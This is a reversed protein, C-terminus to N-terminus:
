HRWTTGGNQVNDPDDHGHMWVLPVKAGDQEVFANHRITRGDSCLIDNKTAYGSFDYKKSM